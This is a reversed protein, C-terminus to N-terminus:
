ASSDSDIVMRKIRREADRTEEESYGVKRKFSTRMTPAVTAFCNMESFSKDLLTLTRLVLKTSYQVNTQKGKGANHEVLNVTLQVEVIDGEAIQSPKIKKFKQTGNTQQREYYEVRNDVTHVFVEGRLEDLIGKPDVDNSFGIHHEENAFKKSTFYRNTIEVTTYGETDGVQLAKAFSDTNLGSLLVRQQIHKASVFRGYGRLVPPLDCQMIVGQITFVAEEPIQDDQGHTTLHWTHGVGTDNTTTEFHIAAFTYEVDSYTALANILTGSSIREAAITQLRTATRQKAVIAPLRAQYKGADQYPFQHSLM